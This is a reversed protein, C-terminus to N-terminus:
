PRGNRSRQGCTRHAGSLHRGIADPWSPGPLLAVVLPGIPGPPLAVRTIGLLRHLARKRCRALPVRMEQRVPLQFCLAACFKWIAVFDMELHTRFVPFLATETFFEHDQTSASFDAPEFRESTASPCPSTRRRRSPLRRTARPSHAMLHSIARITRDQSRERDSQLGGRRPSWGGSVVNPGCRRDSRGHRCNPRRRCDACTSAEAPAAHAGNTPTSISATGASEIRTPM